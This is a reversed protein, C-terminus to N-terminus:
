SFTVRLRSARAADKLVLGAPRGGARSPPRRGDDLAAILKREEARAAQDLNPAGHVTMGEPAREHREAVATVLQRDLLVHAFV